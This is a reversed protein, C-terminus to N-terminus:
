DSNDTVEPNPYDMHGDCIAYQFLVNRMNGCRDCQARSPEGNNGRTNAYGHLANRTSNCPSHYYNWFGHTMIEEFCCGCIDTVATDGSAGDSGGCSCVVCEDNHYGM